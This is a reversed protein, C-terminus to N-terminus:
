LKGAKRLALLCSVHRCYGYHSHGLCDCYGGGTTPFACVDYQEGGEQVLKSFRYAIGGIETRLPTLFYHTPRDHETIVLYATGKSARTLRATRGQKVTSNKM